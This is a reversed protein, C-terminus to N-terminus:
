PIVTVVVNGTAGSLEDTVTVTYEGPTSVSVWNGYGSFSNSRRTTCDVVRLAPPNEPGTVTAIIQCSDSDVETGDSMRTSWHFGFSTTGSGQIQFLNAGVKCCKVAENSYGSEVVIREVTPTAIAPPEARASAATDTTPLEASTTTEPTPQAPIASTAIAPPAANDPSPAFYTYVSWCAAFIGAVAAASVLWRAIRRGAGPREGADM